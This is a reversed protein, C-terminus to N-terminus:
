IKGNQKQKNNRQYQELENLATPSHEIWSKYARPNARQIMRHFHEVNYPKRAERYEIAYRVTSKILVLTWFLFFIATVHDIHQMTRNYVNTAIKDIGQLM